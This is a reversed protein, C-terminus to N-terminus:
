RRKRRYSPVPPPPDLRDALRRLVTALAPDSMDDDALVEVRSM